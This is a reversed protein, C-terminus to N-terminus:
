VPMLIIKSISNALKIQEELDDNKVTSNIFTLLVAGENPQFDWLDSSSLWGHGESYAYHIRILSDCNFFVKRSERFEIIKDEGWEMNLALEDECDSLSKNLTAVFMNPTDFRLGLESANLNNKVFAKTKKFTSALKPWKASFYCFRNLQERRTVAEAWINERDPNVLLLEWETTHEGIGQVMEDLTLKNLKM